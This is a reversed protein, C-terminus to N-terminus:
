DNLDPFFLDLVTPIQFEPVKRKPYERDNYRCVNESVTDGAADTAQCVNVRKPTCPCQM